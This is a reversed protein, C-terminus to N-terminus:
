SLLVKLQEGSFIQETNGLINIVGNNKEIRKSSANISALYLAKEHAIKSMFIIVSFYNYNDLFDKTAMECNFIFTHKAIVKEVVDTIRWYEPEKIMRSEAMLNLYSGNPM